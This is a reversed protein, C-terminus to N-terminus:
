VLWHPEMVLGAEVAEVIDDLEDDDEGVGQRAEILAEVNGISATRGAVIGVANGDRVPSYEVFLKGPSTRSLGYDIGGPIRLKLGLSSIKLVFFFSIFFSPHSVFLSLM